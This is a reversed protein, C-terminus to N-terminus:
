LSTTSSETTDVDSESAPERSVNEHLIRYKDLDEHFLKKCFAVVMADDEYGVGPVADPIMDIPSIVYLLAAVVAIM